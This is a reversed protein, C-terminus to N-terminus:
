NEGEEQKLQERLADLDFYYEHGESTDSPTTAKDLKGDLISFFFDEKAKEYLENDLKRILKFGELILGLSEYFLDKTLGRAEVSAQYKECTVHLM